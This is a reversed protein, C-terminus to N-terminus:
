VTFIFPDNMIKKAYDRKRRRKSAKVDVQSTTAEINVAVAKHLRDKRAETIQNDTSNNKM